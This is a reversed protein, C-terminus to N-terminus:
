RPILLPLVGVWPLWLLMLRTPARQLNGKPRLKPQQASGGAEATACRSHSTHLLFGLSSLCHRPRTHPWVCGPSRPLAPLSPPLLGEGPIHVTSGLLEARSPQKSTCARKRPIRHWMCSPVARNREGAQWVVVSFNVM